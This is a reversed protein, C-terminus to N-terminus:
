KRSEWWSNLLIFSSSIPMLVAAVFPNVYGLLAATGGIVNYFLSIILNKKILYHARESLEFLKPLMGVGQHMLYVDSTRLAIEVSGKVAVGVMSKQLALSDNVGDGVMMISNGDNFKLAKGSPSLESFCREPPIGLRGGLDKVFNEQDGSLLSIQIGKQSFFRIVEQTGPLLEEILFIECMLVGNKFVGVIKDFHNTKVGKIEYFDGRIFGVIGQGLVEQHGEIHIPDNLFSNEKETILSKEFYSRIAFAIPHYSISELALIENKMESSLEQPSTRIVGFKNSTITGTKDLFIEKIKLVKEFVDASKILIGRDLAKSLTFSLALPTGFAMACPCALIVLALARSVAQTPDTSWFFILFTAALLFVVALLIQSAKDALNMIKVKHLVGGHIQDMLRGFESEDITGLVELQVADNLSQTGAPVRMGSGFQRPLSEGNIFSLDFSAGASKRNGQGIVLSDVPLLDGKNIEIIDGKKLSQGPVDRKIGNELRTVKLGKSLGMSMLRNMFHSQMKKQTWRSMLILFLFGSLSDFYILNTGQILSWVSAVSGFTFALVMPADISLRKEKISYWFGKYFPWAGFTAVPLFLILSLYNMAIAGIGDLGFYNAFSFTMINGACAGVVGLRILDNQAEKKILELEGSDSQIPEAKFGLSEIADVVRGFSGSNEDIQVDAIHDILSVRLSILGDIKQPLNELKRVCNSCSMGSVHFRMEGSQSEKEYLNLFEKQDLYSNKSIKNKSNPLFDSNKMLLFFLM